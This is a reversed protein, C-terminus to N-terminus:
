RKLKSDLWKCILHSIVGAAATLFVVEFANMSLGRETVLIPATVPYLMGCKWFITFVKEPIIKM